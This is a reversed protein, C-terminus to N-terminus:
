PSLRSREWGPAGARRLYLFRDHLRRARAQWFEWRRPALLYGRWHPPRAPPTEKWEEDCSALGELLEELSVPESQRSARPTARSAPPRRAFIEDALAEPAAEVEGEVRIQLELPRGWYATLAASPVAALARAKPSRSDTLFVFSGDPRPHAIVMRGQPRGDPSVTSLCMADPYQIEAAAVARRRWEAFLEAPDAPLSALRTHAPSGASM